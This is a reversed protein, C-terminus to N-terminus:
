GKLENGILLSLSNSAGIFRERLVGTKVSMQKRIDPDKILPILRVALGEGSLGEEDYCIAGGARCLLKANLNQHQSTAESYPILIAPKCLATIEAVTTAGARAIVIDAVCYAHEMDEMYKFIGCTFGYKSYEESIMMYDNRGCIHIFQIVDEYDELYPLLGAVANNINHSGLSGGFILITTRRDKLKLFDLSAGRQANMLKQRIPNGTLVTKNPPFFEFSSQYSVAIKRAFPMLFKNDLGPFYNQVHLIVPIKLPSAYIVVPVSIYAGFAVIIEPKIRRLLLYSQVIGVSMRVMFGLLNWFKKRPLAAASIKYTEYRNEKLLEYALQRRDIIFECKIDPHQEMLKEALALGPYIHGGTGGVVILVKKESKV